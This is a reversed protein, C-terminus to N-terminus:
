VDKWDRIHDANGCGFEYLTAAWWRHIMLFPSTVMFFEDKGARMSEGETPRQQATRGRWGRSACGSGAIREAVLLYVVARNRGIQEMWCILFSVFYGLVIVGVDDTHGNNQFFAEVKFAPKKGSHANRLVSGGHAVALIQLSLLSGHSGRDLLGGVALQIDCPVQSQGCVHNGGVNRVTLNLGDFADAANFVHDDLRLVLRCDNGLAFFLFGCVGIHCGRGFHNAGGGGPGYAVGTCAGPNGDNVGANIGIM